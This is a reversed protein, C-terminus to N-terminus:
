AKSDVLMEQVDCYTDLLDLIKEKNKPDVFHGRCEFCEALEYDSEAKEVYMEEVSLRLAKAIEERESRDLRVRADEIRWLDALSYGLSKAFEFADIKKEWLYYKLNYGFVRNKENMWIDGILIGYEFSIRM